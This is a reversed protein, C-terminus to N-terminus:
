RNDNVHTSQKDQGLSLERTFLTIVPPCDPTLPWYVFIKWCNLEVPTSSIQGFTNLDNASMLIWSLGLDWTLAFQNTLWVAM